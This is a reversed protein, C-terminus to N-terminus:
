SAREAEERRFPLRSLVPAALILVALGAVLGFLPRGPKALGTAVLLATAAAPSHHADAVELFFLTLGAAVAAAGVHAWTPYGTQALSPASWLGFAALMALGCGIGVAHGLTANRVRGSESGPHAAFVYATPGLTATLAPWALGRGVAGVVALSVGALLAFRLGTLVREALPIPDQDEHKASPPTVDTAKGPVAAPVAYGHL